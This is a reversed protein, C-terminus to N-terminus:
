FDVRAEVPAVLEIDRKESWGKYATNIFSPIALKVPLFGEGVDIVETIIGEYGKLGNFLAVTGKFRVIDGVKFEGPKRGARLFKLVNEDTM